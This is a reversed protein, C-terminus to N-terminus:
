EGLKSHTKFHELKYDIFKSTSSDFANGFLTPMVSPAVYCEMIGNTGIKETKFGGGYTNFKPDIYKEFKKGLFYGFSSTSLKSLSKDVGDDVKRNKM